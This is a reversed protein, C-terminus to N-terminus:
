RSSTRVIPSPTPTGGPSTHQALTVIGVIMAIAVAIAVGAALPGLWPPGAAGPAAHSGLRFAATIRRRRDAEIELLEEPRLEPM